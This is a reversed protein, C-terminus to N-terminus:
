HTRAPSLLLLSSLLRIFPRWLTFLAEQQSVCLWLCIITLLFTCSAFTFARFIPLQASKRDKFETINTVFPFTFYPTLRLMEEGGRYWWTVHELGVAFVKVRLNYGCVAVQLPRSVLRECSKNPQRLTEHQWGWKIGGDCLYHRSNNQKNTQRNNKWDRLNWTNVTPLM